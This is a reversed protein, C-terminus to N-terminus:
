DNGMRQYYANKAFEVFELFNKKLHYPGGIHLQIYSVLYYMFDKGYNDKMHLDAGANLLMRLISVAKGGFYDDSCDGDFLSITASKGKINQENVDIGSIRLLYEVVADHYLAVQYHLISNGESDRLSFDVAEGDDLCMLHELSYAYMAPVVGLTELGLIDRGPANVSLYGLYAELLSMIKYTGFESAAYTLPNVANPNDLCPLKVKRIKHDGEAGFEERNEVGYYDMLFDDFDDLLQYPSDRKVGQLADRCLAEVIYTMVGYGWSDIVCLSAGAAVATKIKEINMDAAALLLAVNKASMGRFRTQYEDESIHAPLNQGTILKRKRRM